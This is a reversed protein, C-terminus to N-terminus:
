WLLCGGGFVEYTVVGKTKRSGHYQQFLASILSFFIPQCMCLKKIQSCTRCNMLSTGGSSNSCSHAVKSKYETLFLDDDSFEVSKWLNASSLPQFISWIFRFQKHTRENEPLELLTKFWWIGIDDSGEPTKVLSAIFFLHVSQARSLENYCLSGDWLVIINATEKREHRLKM